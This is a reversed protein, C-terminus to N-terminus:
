KTLEFKMEVNDELRDFVSLYSTIKGIVIVPSSLTPDESNDFFLAVSGGSPWYALDGNEFTSQLEGQSPLSKKGYYERDGWRNMSLTLPLSEVFDQSTKSNDLSATIVTTGVTINIPTTKENAIPDDKQEENNIYSRDDEVEAQNSEGLASSIQDQPPNNSAAESNNDNEQNQQACGIISILLVIILLFLLNTNKKM